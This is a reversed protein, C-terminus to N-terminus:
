GGSAINHAPPIFKAKICPRTKRYSLLLLQSLEATLRADKNFTRVSSRIHNLFDLNQSESTDYGINELPYEDAFGLESTHRAIHEM